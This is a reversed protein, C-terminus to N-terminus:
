NDPTGPKTKSGVANVNAETKNKRIGGTLKRLNGYCRLRPPTYPKKPTRNPKDM